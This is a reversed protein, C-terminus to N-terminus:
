EFSVGANTIIFDMAIFEIARTPVLIIKGNLRNAEIDAQTNNSDNMIVNFQDIGQQSQILALKPKVNALFRARTQPTNQEFLIDLAANSVIRKVELLMRRVNVRDLASRSLQLTKQGFIVFGGAPFSAIPNLRADYLVNRDEANLRVATNLVGTLAGRRFGAPAFWPFALKDNLGLAGLAVVSAPVKVADGNIEDEIIVDPFYSAAYNSNLARGAFMEASKRVNARASDGDYLRTKTDDYAPVDMLYIAKSFEETKTVAHNTVFTDRIGPITVINVRTTFEDTMIDIAKRYSAVVNNLKGSGPSSVSNLNQYSIVGGAGKGGESVSSARDNMLAQDRDLINLGDFGGYFMNTFKMYETFRNFQVPSRAAMLSAFTLRTRAGDAVTYRPSQPVGNRIYAAERMHDSTSGTITNKVATALSTTVGAPENSFAVKALSFKNNNLSDAGSGTVLADMGSLGAFKTLSSILPNPFNGANPTLAANAVGDAGQFSSSFPLYEFQVGFYLSPHAREEVGPFGTFYPSSTSSLQGRTVKYRMPVPPIISSSLHQVRQDTTLTGPWGHLRLSETVTTTHGVGSIAVNARDTISNSTKLVPLGRFGFPLAEPPTLKDDVDANMVVRVLKSRNPRKGTVNLRRESETEADFNFAVKMDGIKNAIYNEDNPNLTCLPYQELIKLNTDTDTFDRILVTFTGYPNQNDISRRINTISVKYKTNVNAGDDITEFHFLNFEKSGFPQSIFQTTRAPRYRTNYSGFVDSIADGATTTAATGSLIGVSRTLFAAPGTPRAVSALENQVPLDLYLLHQETQFREPSTNLIKGVYHMSAPDLSATYIRIGPHGEDNGYDTGIASSLILKFTGDGDADDYSTIHAFDAAHSRRTSYNDGPNMVQVRSGTATFIVGRVLHAYGASNISDNDTFIPYGNTEVGTKVDHAAVLFQVEGCPKNSTTEVGGKIRFGANKVTGKRRTLAMDGTTDNAGAGLVRIFTLATRHQLWQHVAYPGFRDPDLTGFKEEFDIFSGVTTPVFAPGKISTGIVGAPVGVIETTRQTLDVEREFFGPSRFTQEAM